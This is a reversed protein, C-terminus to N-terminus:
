GTQRRIAHLAEDPLVITLGSRRAVVEVGVLHKRDLSVLYDVKARKAAAVFFASGSAIRSCKPKVKQSTGNM